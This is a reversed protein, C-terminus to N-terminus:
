YWSRYLYCNDTNVSKLAGHRAADYMIESSPLFGDDSNLMMSTLVLKETSDLKM